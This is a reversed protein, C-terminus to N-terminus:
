KTACSSKHFQALRSHLKRVVFKLGEAFAGELVPESVDFAQRTRRNRRQGKMTTEMSREGLAVEKSPAVANDSLVFQKGGVSFDALYAAVRFNLFRLLITFAFINQAALAFRFVVLPANGGKQFM